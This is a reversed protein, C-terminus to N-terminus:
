NSLRLASIKTAIERFAQRLEDGTAALYAHSADTACQAMVDKAMVDEGVGFGITYVTIGTAKANSCLTKAQAFSSGNPANCNIHDSDSGSGPGSDKSIVGQCYATNFAGDTM